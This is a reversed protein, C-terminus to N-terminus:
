NFEKGAKYGNLFVVVEHIFVTELLKENNKAIIVYKRGNYITLGLMEALNISYELDIDIKNSM